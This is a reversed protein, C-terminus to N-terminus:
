ELTKTYDEERGFVNFNVSKKGTVLFQGNFSITWKVM